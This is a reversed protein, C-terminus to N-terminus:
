TQGQNRHAELIAAVTMQNSVWAAYQAESFGLFEKLTQEPLESIVEEHWYDVYDDIDDATALGNLCDKVFTTAARHAVRLHPLLQTM